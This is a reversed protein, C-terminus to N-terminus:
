HSGFFHRYYFEKLCIDKLVVNAWELEIGIFYIFRQEKKVNLVFWNIITFISLKM